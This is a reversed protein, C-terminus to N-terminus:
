VHTAGAKFFRLMALWDERELEVHAVPNEDAEADPISDFTDIAYTVADLGTQVLEGETKAWMTHLGFRRHALFHRTPEHETPM